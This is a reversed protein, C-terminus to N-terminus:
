LACFNDVLIDMTFVKNEKLVAFYDEGLLQNVPKKERRSIDFVLCIHGFNSYHYM